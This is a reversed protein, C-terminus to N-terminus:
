IDGDSQPAQREAELRAELARFLAQGRAEQEPSRAFFGRFGPTKGNRLRIRFRPMEGRERLEFCEIEEWRWYYTRWTGRAKVGGSELIVGSLAARASLVAAFGFGLVGLLAAAPVGKQLAYAASCVAFFAYFVAPVWAMQRRWQSVRIITGDLPLISAETNPANTAMEDM